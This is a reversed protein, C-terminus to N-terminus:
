GDPLAEAGDAYISDAQQIDGTRAVAAAEEFLEAGEAWESALGRLEIIDPLTDGPTAPNNEVEEFTTEATLAAALADAFQQEAQEYQGSEYLEQGETTFWVMENTRRLGRTFSEIFVHEDRSDLEIYSWVEDSYDLEPEDIATLDAGDLATELAEIQEGLQDVIELATEFEADAQEYEDVDSRANATDIALDWDVALSQYEVLARQIDVVDRAADVQEQLEGDADAAAGDLADEADTLRSDLRDIDSNTAETDDFEAFENLERANTVLAEIAQTYQDAPDSGTDDTSDDAGTDDTSDDDGNEPDVEPGDGDDGLCGALGVTAAVGCAQLWRRRTRPESADVGVDGHGVM